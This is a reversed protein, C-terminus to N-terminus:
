LSDQPELCDKKQFTQKAMLMPIKLIHEIDKQPHERAAEARNAQDVSLTIYFSWEEQDTQGGLIEVFSGIVTSKTCVQSM